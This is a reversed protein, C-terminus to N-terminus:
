NPLRAMADAFEPQNPYIKVGESLQARAEQYRNLGALAMAYGLRARAVRPDLRMAQEYHPLSEAAHGSARLAEAWQLEAVAYTPDSKVAATFREIAERYRGSAALIVGLSYQAKSFRPWRRTVEEFQQTAGRTDGTMALATGLKHRLSPEGPALEIGKRFYMAAAEWQSEDLAQAGRVEYAVASELLTSLQEMLPDPPKIEGPGRARLHAAAQELNGMGRYAMALPYHITIEKPDLALAQELRDVAGAYEQRALLAQGLGYLAPVSRPDLSLAKAFLPEADAPRGQDLYTDGLWVLTALDDPQVQLAREFSRVEDSADGVAKYLHALYYPWRGDSPALMQANLFCPEAADRYEAAMLLRGMEGYAMGLDADTTGPKQMTAVLSAYGGRLQRAVSPEAGSLDPLAIARLTRRDPPAPAPRSSTAATTGSNSGCAGALLATCLFACHVICLAMNWFADKMTCEDNHM